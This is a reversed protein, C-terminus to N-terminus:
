QGESKLHVGSRRLRQRRHLSGRYGLDLEGGSWLFLDACYSVVPFSSETYVRRLLQASRFNGSFDWAVRLSPPEENNGHQSYCGTPAFACVSGPTVAGSSTASGHRVGATTAASAHSRARTPNASGVTPLTRFAAFDFIGRQADHARGTCTRDAFSLSRAGSEIRHRVREDQARGTASQLLRIRHMRREGCFMGSSAADRLRSM